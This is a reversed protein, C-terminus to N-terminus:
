SRGGEGVAGELRRMARFLRSEVAGLTIGLVDAIERYSLGEFRALVLVARQSTPLDDIARRVARWREKAELGQLPGPLSGAPEPEPDRDTPDGSGGFPLMRVIKRRRLVNLCHNTAVRYLWTSVKGRPRFTSAKRWVKLFVEQTADRAGEEDGLLRRCVGLVRREHRLVLREFAAEDGKAIRRVLPLDADVSTPADGALAPTRDTMVAPEM